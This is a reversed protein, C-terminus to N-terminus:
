RFGPAGRPWGRARGADFDRENVAASVHEIHLRFALERSARIM